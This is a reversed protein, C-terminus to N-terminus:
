SYYIFKRPHVPQGIPCRRLLYSIHWYVLDRFNIDFLFVIGQQMRIVLTCAHVRPPQNSVRVGIYLQVHITVRFCTRKEDKVIELDCGCHQVGVTDGRVM